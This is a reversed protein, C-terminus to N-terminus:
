GQVIPTKKTCKAFHAIRGERGQTAHPQKTCHLVGTTRDWGLLVLENVGARWQFTVLSISATSLTTHRKYSLFLIHFSIFLCFPSATKMPLVPRLCPIFKEALVPVDLYKMYKVSYAAFYSCKCLTHFINTVTHVQLSEQLAKFLSEWTQHITCYALLCVIRFVPAFNNLFNDPQRQPSNLLSLLERHFQPKFAFCFFLIFFFHSSFILM